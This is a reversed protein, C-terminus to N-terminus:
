RPPPRGRPPLPPPPAPANLVEETGDDKRIRDVKERPIVLLGYPTQVRVRRTGKAVVQGTIATATRSCSWTPTFPSPSALLGAALWRADASRSSGASSDVAREEPPPPEPPPSRALLARVEEHDPKLEVVKRFMSLARPM